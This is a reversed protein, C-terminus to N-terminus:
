EVGGDEFAEEEYMNHALDSNYVVSEVIMHGSERSGM